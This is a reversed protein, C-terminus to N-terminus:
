GQQGLREILLAEVELRAASEIIRRRMPEHPVSEAFRKAKLALARLAEPSDLLDAEQRDAADPKLMDDGLSRARHAAQTHPIPSRMPLAHYANTGTRGGCSAAYPGAVPELGLKV